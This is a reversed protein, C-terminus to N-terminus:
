VKTELELGVAHVGSDTSVSSLMSLAAIARLSSPPNLLAYTNASIYTRAFGCLNLRRNGLPCRGKPLRVLLLARQAILSLQQSYACNHKSRKRVKSEDVIEQRQLLLNVRVACFGIDTSIIHSVEKAGM